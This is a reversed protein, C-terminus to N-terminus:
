ARPARRRRLRLRGYPREPGNRPVPWGRPPRRTAHPGSYTRPRRSSSGGVGPTTAGHRRDDQAEQREQEGPRNGHQQRTRLPRVADGARGDDQPLRERERRDQRRQARSEGETALQDQLGLETRELDRQVGEHR